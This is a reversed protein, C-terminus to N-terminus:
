KLEEPLRATHIGLIKARAGARMEEAVWMWLLHDILEDFNSRFPLYWPCTRWTDPGFLDPFAGMLPVMIYHLIVTYILGIGIGRWFTLRPYKEALLIYVYVCFLGLLVHLVGAWHMGNGGLIHWMPSEFGWYDMILVPPPPTIDPGWPPFISETGWKVLPSMLGILFASNRMAKYNRESVASETFIWKFFGM